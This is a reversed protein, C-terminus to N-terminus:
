LEDKVVSSYDVNQKNAIQRALRKNHFPFEAVVKVVQEWCANDTDLYAELCESKKRGIQMDSFRLGSIVAKPVGLNECLTEWDGIEAVAKELERKKSIDIHHCGGAAVFLLSLEYIIQMIM